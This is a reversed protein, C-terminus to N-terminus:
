KSFVVKMTPKTVINAFQDVVIRCPWARENAAEEVRRHHKSHGHRLQALFGVVYM